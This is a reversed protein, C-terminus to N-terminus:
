PLRAVLWVLLWFALGIWFPCTVWAWSWNIVGVLKLVVFIIGLTEM